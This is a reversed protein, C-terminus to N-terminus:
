MPAQTIIKWHTASPYQRLVEACNKGTGFIYDGGPVYFVLLANDPPLEKGIAVWDM